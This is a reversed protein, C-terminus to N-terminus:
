IVAYWAGGNGDDVDYVQNAQTAHASISSFASLSSEGAIQVFYPVESAAEAPAPAWGFGHALTTHGDHRGAVQPQVGYVPSRPAFAVTRSCHQCPSSFRRNSYTPPSSPHETKPPTANAAVALSANTPSYALSIPM